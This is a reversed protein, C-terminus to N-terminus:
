KKHTFRLMTDNILKLTREKRESFEQHATSDYDRLSKVNETWFEHDKPYRCIEKIEILPALERSADSLLPFDVKM